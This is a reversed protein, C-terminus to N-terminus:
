SDEEVYAVRPDTRLEELMVSSLKGAFGKLAHKYLHKAKFNHKKGLEGVVTEANHVEESFVVIYEDQRHMSGKQKKLLPALGHNSKLFESNLSQKMCGQLVLTFILVFAPLYCRYSKM